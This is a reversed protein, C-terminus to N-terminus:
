SEYGHKLIWPELTPMIPAFADAYKTWRGDARKYIPEIVQNYSPTDIRTKRATGIHDLVGDHWDLGLFSILPRITNELDAVIDEYRIEFASIPMKDRYVQWTSFAEDYLHAADALNLFNAMASNLKFTHMYCSLVSDCPHRLALIFKADPFIRQIFGAEILNLPLKDVIIPKAQDEDSLHKSREDLYARRFRRLDDASMAEIAAPEGDSCEHLASVAASILPYEELTAIEPHGRLIVDLLTTGSRPFGVLFTPDTLGDDPSLSPWQGPDAADFFTKLMRVRALYDNKNVGSPREYQDILRNSEQFSAMAQTNNGLRDHLDGLMHMRKRWFKPDLIMSGHQEPQVATLADVAEQYKKQKKLLNAKALAFQPHLGIVSVADDLATELEEMRNRRELADFLNYRIFPNTSESIIARRYSKIADETQGLEFQALGLNNLVVSSDPSISLSHTYAKLADEHQGLGAMAIGLDNYRGATAQISVARELYKVADEFHGGDALANGLINLADATRSDARLVKKALKLTHDLQRQGLANNAEILTTQIAMPSLSLSPSASKGKRKKKSKPM